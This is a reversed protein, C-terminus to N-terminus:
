LNNIIKIDRIIWNTNSEDIRKTLVLKYKKNVMENKDGSILSGTLNIYYEIYYSNIFVELVEEDFTVYYKKPIFETININNIIHKENEQKLIELGSIYKSALTKDLYKLLIEYNENEFSSFINIFIEKIYKETEKIDYPFCSTVFSNSNLIKKSDFEDNRLMKLIFTDEEEKHVKSFIVFTFIVIFILLAALIGLLILAGSSYNGSLELILLTKSMIIVM